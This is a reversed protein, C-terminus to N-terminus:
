EPLSDFITLDGGFFACFKGAFQRHNIWQRSFDRSIPFRFKAGLGCDKCDVGSTLAPLFQRQMATATQRANRARQWQAIEIPASRQRLFAASFPSFIERCVNKTTKTRFVKNDSVNSTNSSLSVSRAALSRVTDALCPRAIAISTISGLRLRRLRVKKSKLQNSVM